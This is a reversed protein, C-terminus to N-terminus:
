LEKIIAHFNIWIFKNGVLIKCNAYGKIVPRKKILIGAFTVPISYKYGKSNHTSICEYLKGIQLKM